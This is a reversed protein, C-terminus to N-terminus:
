RQTNLAINQVGATRLADMLEVVRQYAISRDASIRVRLGPRAAALTQMQVTLASQTIPADDLLLTGDPALIVHVTLARLAPAPVAVPPPASRALYLGTVGLSVLSVGLAIAVVRTPRATQPAPPANGALRARLEENEMRLSQNEHALAETEDRYNGM